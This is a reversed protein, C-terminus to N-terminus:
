LQWLSWCPQRQSRRFSQRGTREPKRRPELKRRPERLAAAALLAATSGPPTLAASAASAHAVSTLAVSAPAVTISHRRRLPAAGLRAGGYHGGSFRAGGYHGGGGHGGGGHGGGGHGGGRAFIGAAGALGVRRPWLGSLWRGFGQLCSEPEQLLRGDRRSHEAPGAALFGARGAGKRRSRTMRRRVSGRDLWGIIYLGHGPLFM